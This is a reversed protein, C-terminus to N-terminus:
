PFLIKVISVGEPMTSPQIIDFLSKQISMVRRTVFHRSSLCAMIKAVIKPYPGGSGTKSRGLSANQRFFQADKENKPRM